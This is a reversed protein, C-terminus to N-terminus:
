AATAFGMIPYQVKPTLARNETHSRIWYRLTTYETLNITGGSVYDGNGAIDAGTVPDVLEFTDATRNAVRANGNAATNGTVGVITILENNQWKHGASTIVIPTTNSADSVSAEGATQFTYEKFTGDGIAIPVHGAPPKLEAWTDGDDVSYYPTVTRTGSGNVGDAAIRLVLTVQNCPDAIQAQPTIYDGDPDNLLLIIGAGSASIQFTGGSGTIDVMLDIQTVIAGLETDIGPQFPIWDSGGNISYFWNLDCDPGVFQTVAAILMGAEVGTLQQFRIQANNQFNAVGIEYTLDSDPHGQWYSDNPSTYLVGDAPQTRVPEGTLIDVEGMKAYWVKYNPSNTFLHVSYEGPTYGVLNEFTFTTPVTADESTSIEDPYLTKSQMVQRTPFGNLTKHIEVTLPLEMDKSHIKVKVYSIWAIGEQVAFTQALPDGYHFQTETVTEEREVTSVIGMVVKQRTERFGQSFFSCAAHSEDPDSADFVRIEKQGVRINEPITMEATMKGSALSTVTNKGQYTATGAVCDGTATLDVAVGDFTCAMDTNPKIGEAILDIDIQRMYPIVTMDIVRDELDVLKREPVISKTVGTRERAANPQRGWQHGRDSTSWHPDTMSQLQAAAWGNSRDMTLRWAGWTIKRAQEANAAEIEAMAAMNDEFNIDVDALRNVDTWFDEDPDALLTGIWAYVQYPNVPMINTAKPQVLYVSPQYDFTIVSGVKTIGTSLAENLTIQKGDEAAPLRIVREQPDIAATFKLGNKNFTVDGGGQGTLSDVFIGKANAAATNETAAQKALFLANYYQLREIQAALENLRWQTMRQIELSQITVDTAEYTYPPIHLIAINLPGTQTEPPVPQEAPVGPIRVFYGDNKLAVKDLRALFCEYDFSPSEGPVPFAAGMCRFDVCDRLQWTGNPAPEVEEYDNLYSDAAVFDGETTHRWFEFTVYYTAATTPQGGPTEGQAGAASWDIESDAHNLADSNKLLAYSNYESQSQSPSDNVRLIRIVDRANGALGSVPNGSIVEEATGGMFVLTDQGDEAGKTIQADTVRVRVRTGKTANRNYRVKAYYTAGNDPDSGGLAAFDINNGDKVFDVNKQYDWKGDHCDAEADSCGLVDQVNTLGTPDIHDTGDHTIAVVTETIYNLDTVTKVYARNVKYIRQGTPEVTGTSLGLVTYADSAVAQITLSKGDISQIQLKGSADKCDVLIGSTPYANVSNNIQTAVQAATQGNGTLGVTHSNGDGVKLKVNLGDVDFTESETGTVSAGTITFADVVSNNVSKTVRGKPIDLFQAAITEIEFGEVYAKGSNLEIKLLTDDSGHPRMKMPFNRVVFSGQADFTRRAMEEQLETRETRFVRKVPEGDLFERVAIQGATDVVWEVEFYLWDPGEAAYRPDVGEDAAPKQVDDDNSTSTLPSVTIGVVEKGSGTLTVQGAPVHIFMGRWYIRGATMQWTTGGVFQEACGEIIDGARFITDGIDAVRRDMLALLDMWSQRQAAMGPHPCIAQVGERGSTNVTPPEETGTDQGEDWLKGPDPDDEGLLLFDEGVLKFYRVKHVGAPISQCELKVRDFGNLVDPGTTITVPDSATTEGCITTFTACYTYTTSGATGDVTPPKMIPVELHDFLRVNYEHLFETLRNRGM